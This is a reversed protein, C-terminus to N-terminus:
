IKTNYPQSGSTLQKYVWLQSTYDSLKHNHPRILPRQSQNILPLSPETVWNSLRKTVLSPFFDAIRSCAFARPLVHLSELLKIQMGSCGQESAFNVTGMPQARVLLSQKNRNGRPPISRATPQGLCTDPSSGDTSMTIHINRLVLRADEPFAGLPLRDPCNPRKRETKDPRTSGSRTTRCSQCPHCTPFKSGLSRLSASLKVPVAM